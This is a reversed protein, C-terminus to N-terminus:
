LVAAKITDVIQGENEVLAPILYPQAAMKCTGFEVYGAYEKNTGVIVSNDGGETEISARLEGHPGGPRTWETSVPCLAKAAGEVVKGARQLGVALGMQAHMLEQELMANVDGIGDISISIQAM